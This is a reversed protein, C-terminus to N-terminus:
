GHLQVYEQDIKLEQQYKNVGMQVAKWSGFYKIYTQYAPLKRTSAYGRWKTSNSLLDQHDCAILILQRKTYRNINKVDQQVGVAKLAEKWSGFYKSYTWSRPLNNVKAYENWKDRFRFHDLHKCAIQKLEECSYKKSPSRTLTPIDKKVNHIGVMSLARDWSGFRAIITEYSPLNHDKAYAHWYTPKIAISQNRQLIDILQNTPYIVDKKKNTYTPLNLLTKVTNWSGFYRKYCTVNPLHHEKAYKNWKIASTFNKIHKKAIDLLQQKTYKRM